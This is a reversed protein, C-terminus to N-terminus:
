GVQKNSQSKGQSNENKLETGVQRQPPSLEAQVDNWGKALARRADDRDNNFHKSKAVISVMDDPTPIEAEGPKADFRHSMLDLAQRESMGSNRCKYYADSVHQLKRADNLISPRAQVWALEGASVQPRPTLENIEQAHYKLHRIMDAATEVDGNAVAEGYTEEAIRYDRRARQEAYYSIDDYIGM